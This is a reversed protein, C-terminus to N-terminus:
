KLTAGTQSLWPHIECVLRGAKVAPDDNCMAEAAARDPVDLIFLGRWDGDDMFPGAIQLAGREAYANINAMHGAQIREAEDAPQDRKPGKKLMVFWYQKMGLPLVPTPASAPVTQAGQQGAESACVAFSATTCAAALTLTRAFCM